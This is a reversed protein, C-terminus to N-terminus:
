RGSQASKTAAAGQACTEAAPSSRGSRGVADSLTGSPCNEVSGIRSRQRVKQRCCAGCLFAPTFPMAEALSASCSTVRSELRRPLKHAATQEANSRARCSFTFYLLTQKISMTHAKMLKSCSLVCSCICEQVGIGSCECDLCIQFMARRTHEKPPGREGYREGM